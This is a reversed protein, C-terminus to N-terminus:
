FLAMINWGIEYRVSILTLVDLVSRKPCSGGAIKCLACSDTRYSLFFYARTRFSVICRGGNQVAIYLVCLVSLM